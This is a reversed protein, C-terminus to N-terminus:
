QWDEDELAIQDYKFTGITEVWARSCSAEFGGASCWEYNCARGVLRHHVANQHTYNLRAYYSDPFTLLTERYNHWIRRGDERDWRNVQRAIDAHLHKLFSSLSEASEQANATHAVFHYHNVLVAWAEM